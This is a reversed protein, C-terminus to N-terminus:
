TRCPRKDSGGGAWRSWAGHEMSGTGHGKSGAGREHGRGHEMSQERSRAMSRSMGRGYVMRHRKDVTLKRLAGV